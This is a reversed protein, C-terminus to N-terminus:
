DADYSKISFDDFATVSDAKTWLGVRGAESFTEDDVDFLHEGNLWVTFHNGQAKLRLVSWAGGPVPAKKGYAFWSGTPKLDSRRGAEVKYLVVNDELANARVVYYNQPDRYRWVLGAAQDVSGLIPKFEVSVDVERVTLKDFVLLPFRHNTPDDSVQVVVKRGSPADAEERVLWQGPEGRGTMATSFGEPTTGAEDMEFGHDSIWKAFSLEIVGSAKDMDGTRDFAAVAMRYSQGLDFATDDTHGTNLRRSLELTWRGKAWSGKARVDAASGTPTGPGYQAIRQGSFATPAKRKKEVSDGADEPRAIWIEEDSAATHSKAKGLPKSPTYHHTKDTAYGQPNTRFAKWHWVDWVAEIGDLMDANFPGTHEFALALMDERDDGQEYVGGEANWVWTKHSVSETSDEWSVLFYVDTDTHVSQITVPVSAGENPPLTREAIVELPMSVKWVEDEGKGDLTPAQTVRASVLDPPYQKGEAAYTIAMVIVLISTATRM